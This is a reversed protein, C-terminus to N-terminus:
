IIGIKKLHIMVSNNHTKVYDEAELEFPHEKYEYKELLKNYKNIDKKRPMQLFHTYEHLITGIIDNINKCTNMFVVIEKNKYEGYKRSYRRDTKLTLKPYNKMPTGFYKCCWNFTEEAILTMKQDDM